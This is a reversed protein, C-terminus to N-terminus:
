HEHVTAPTRKLRLRICDALRRRIRSLTQYIAAASQGGERELTDMDADDFYRRHVLRALSEPLASLCERLAEEEREPSEETDAFVAALSEIQDPLLLWPRRKVKRYEEKVRRAAIGMVWPLFPRAPDYQPFTRWLILVVEQFLDERDDPRALAGCLFARLRSECGTLLSLFRDRRSDPHM